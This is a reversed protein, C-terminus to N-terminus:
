AESRLKGAGLKGPIEIGPSRIVIVTTEKYTRTEGMTLSQANPMQANLMSCRVNPIQCEQCEDNRANIM